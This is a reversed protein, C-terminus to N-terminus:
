LPVDPSPLKTGSLTEFLERVLDTGPRPMSNDPHADAWEPAITMPVWRARGRGAAEGGVALMSRFVEAPLRVRTIQHPEPGACFEAQSTVLYERCRVPRQPHISCAENELFPCPIQLSLYERGLELIQADDLGSTDMFTDLLGAKGLRDRNAAFRERVVTRRPEPLNEVFDRIARAEAPALPVAQICCAGCGKKCTIGVGQERCEAVAVDVVMEALQQILPLLASLQVKEAPATVAIEVPRGFLVLTARATMERSTIFPNDPL